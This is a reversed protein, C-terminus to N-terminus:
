LQDLAFFAMPDHAGNHVPASIHLRRKVSLLHDRLDPDANRAATLYRLGRSRLWRLLVTGESNPWPRRAHFVDHVAVATAPKLRDLIASTYWRAFGATHRADILVFGANDPLEADRVDGHTFHWRTRTLADPLNRRAHDIRDYTHLVGDGNDRLARLLWSTSWGHFSGIEIVTHPRLARLSLYCIEAEIDDLKPRMARQALLERQEERAVRLDPAYERYWDILTDVTYM